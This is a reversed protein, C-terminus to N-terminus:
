SAIQFGVICSRVRDRASQGLVVQTLGPVGPLLQEPQRKDRAVFNGAAKAKRYM